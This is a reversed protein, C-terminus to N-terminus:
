KKNVSFKTTKLGFMNAEITPELMQLFAGTLNEDEVEIQDYDSLLFTYQDSVYFDVGKVNSLKFIIKIIDNLFTFKELLLEKEKVEAQESPLDKVKLYCDYDAFLDESERNIFSESVCFYDRKVNLLSLLEDHYGDINFLIGINRHIAFQILEIAIKELGSPKSEDVKKIIFFNRSSM